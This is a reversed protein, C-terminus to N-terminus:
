RRQLTDCKEALKDAFLKCAARRAAEDGKTMDKLIAKEFADRLADARKERKRQRKIENSETM